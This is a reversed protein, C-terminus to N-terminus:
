YQKKLKQWTTQKVNELLAAAGTGAGGGGGRAKDGSCLGVPEPKDATNYFEEARNIHNMILM